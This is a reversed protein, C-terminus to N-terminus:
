VLGYKPRREVGRYLLGAQLLVGYASPCITRRTLEGGADELTASFDGIRFSKVGEPLDSTRQALSYEHAIQWKMAQDFAAIEADTEPNNPCIFAMMRPRMRELDDQTPEQNWDHRDLM